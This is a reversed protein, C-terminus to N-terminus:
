PIIDDRLPASIRHKQHGFEQQDMNGKEIMAVPGEFTAVTRPAHDWNLPNRLTWRYLGLSPTVGFKEHLCSWAHVPFEISASPSAFCAVISSAPLACSLSCSDPGGPFLFGCHM